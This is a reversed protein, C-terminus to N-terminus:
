VSSSVEDQNHEIDWSEDQSIDGSDILDQITMKKNATYLTMEM